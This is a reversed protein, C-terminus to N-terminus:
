QSARLARMTIFWGRRLIGNVRQTRPKYGLERLVMGFKKVSIPEAGDERTMAAYWTYLDSSTYFGAGQGMDEIM